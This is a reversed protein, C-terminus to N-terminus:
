TFAQATFGWCLGAPLLRPSKAHLRATSAPPQAPNRTPTIRPKPPAVGCVAQRRGPGSPGRKPLAGNARNSGFPCPILHSRFRSHMAPLPNKTKSRFFLPEAALTLTPHLFYPATVIQDRAFTSRRHFPGLPPVDATLQGCTNTTLLAAPVPGGALAAFGSPTKVWLATAVRNRRVLARLRSFIGETPTRRFDDKARQATGNHLRIAPSADSPTYHAFDRSVIRRSPPGFPRQFRREPLPQIPHQWAFARNLRPAGAPLAALHGRAAALYAAPRLPWQGTGGKKTPARPLWGGVAVAPLAAAPVPRDVPGLRGTGGAM